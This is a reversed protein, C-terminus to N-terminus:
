KKAATDPVVQKPEEKKEVPKKDFYFTLTNKNRKIFGNKANWQNLVKEYPYKKALEAVYADLEKESAPIVDFVVKSIYRSRLDFAITIKKCGMGKFYSNRIILETKYFLDADDFKLEWKELQKKALDYTTDGNFSMVELGSVGAAMKQSPVNQASLHFMAFGCILFLCISLRKM